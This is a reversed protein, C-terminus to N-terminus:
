LYQVQGVMTEASISQWLSELQMVLYGVSRRKNHCFVIGAHTVGGANLRLFDRDRTVMVRGDALAFALQERDPVGILQEEFTTTVDIGRRRLEEAVAADIHEDLHYRIFM